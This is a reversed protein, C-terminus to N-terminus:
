RASGASMSRAPAALFGPGGDNRHGAPSRHSGPLGFGGAHATFGAEGAPRFAPTRGSPAPNRVLGSVEIGTCQRRTGDHIEGIM